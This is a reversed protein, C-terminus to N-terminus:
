GTPCSACTAGAGTCVDVSDESACYDVSAEPGTPWVTCTVGTDAIVVTYPDKNGAGRVTGRRASIRETTVFSDIALQELNLKLKRM